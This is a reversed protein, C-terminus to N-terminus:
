NPQSEQTRPSRLWADIRRLYASEPFRTRFQGARTRAEVMRGERVLAEIAVAEREQVFTGDPFRRMHEDVWQRAVTPQHALARQARDILEIETLDPAIAVAPVREIEIPPAIAANRVPASAAGTRAQPVVPGALGGIETTEDVADSTAPAEHRSGKGRSAAASSRDAAVRVDVSPASDRPRVYERVEWVVGGSAAGVVMPLIVTNGWKLALLKLTGALSLPAKPALFGVPIAAAAAATAAELLPALRQTLDDMQRQEPFESEDAELAASLARPLEAGMERLRPPDRHASM